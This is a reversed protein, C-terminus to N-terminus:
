TILDRVQARFSRPLGTLGAQKTVFEWINDVRDNHRSDSRFLAKLNLIAGCLCFDMTIKKKKKKKQCSSPDGPCCPGTVPNLLLHVGLSLVITFGASVGGIFRVVVIYSFYPQLVMSWGFWSVVGSTIAM